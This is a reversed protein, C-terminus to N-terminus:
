KYKEKQQDIRIRFMEAISLGAEAEPISIPRGYARDFLEKTARIDGKLAKKILVKTIKELYPGLQAAIRERAVEATLTNNSKPRGGKKGNIRSTQGPM